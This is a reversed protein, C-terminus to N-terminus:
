SIAPDPTGAINNLFADKAMQIRMDDSDAFLISANTDAGALAIERGDVTKIRDRVASGYGLKEEDETAFMKKRMDTARRTFSEPDRYKGPGNDVKILMDEAVKSTQLGAMALKRQAALQACPDTGQGTGASYDATIRALEKTTEMQAVAALEGQKLATAANIQAKAATAVQSAVVKIASIQQQSYGEEQSSLAQFLGQQFAEQLGEMLYTYANVLEESFPPCGLALAPRPLLAVALLCALLLNRIM